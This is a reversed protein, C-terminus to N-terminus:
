REYERAWNTIQKLLHQNTMNQLMVMRNINFDLALQHMKESMVTICTNQLLALHKDTLLQILNELGSLSTLVVLDFKHKKWVRLLSQIEANKPVCRRYSIVEQVFAKRKILELSLLKNGFPACFIFVKNNECYELIPLSLIARAGVDHESYIVQKCSLKLLADATSQGAAICTLKTLLTKQIEDLGKFTEKVANPSVFVVIEDGCLQAFFKDRWAVDQEIEICPFNYTTAGGSQLLGELSEGQTKPRTVLINLESLITSKNM